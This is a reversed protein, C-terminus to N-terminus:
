VREHVEDKRQSSTILFVAAAIFMVAASLILAAVLGWGDSLIGFAIMSLITAISIAMSYSSLVTARLETPLFKNLYGQFVAEKLATVGHVIFPIFSLKRAPVMLLTLAAGGFATLVMLLPEGGIWRTLAGAKRTALFSLLMCGVQVGGLLAVPFGHGVLYPQWALALIGSSIYWFCSGVTLYFLHKRKYLYSSGEAMTQLYRRMTKPSEGSKTRYPEKGIFAIYAMVAFAGLGSILWIERFLGQWVLISGAMFGLLLGLHVGSALGGWYETLDEKAGRSILSDAFWASFAGSSFTAGIGELAFILLLIPFSGTPGTFFFIGIECSGIIVLSLMVSLKRGWLDAVTGTPIEFILTTAYSAIILLSIESYSLGFEIFFIVWFPSMLATLFGLVLKVSYFFRYTRRIEHENSNEM